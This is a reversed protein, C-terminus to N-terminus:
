DPTVIGRPPRRNDCSPFLPAVPYPGPINGFIRCHESCVGMVLHGPWSTPPALLSFGQDLSLTQEVTDIGQTQFFAKKGERWAALAPVDASM